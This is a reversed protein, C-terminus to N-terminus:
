SKDERATRLVRLGGHLFRVQHHILFVPWIMVLQCHALWWGHSHLWRSGDLELSLLLAASLQQALRSWLTMFFIVVAQKFGNLKLAM